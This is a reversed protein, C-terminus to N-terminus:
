PDGRRELERALESMAEAMRDLDAQREEPFQGLAPEDGGELVVPGNEPWGVDLANEAMRGLSKCAARKAERKNM